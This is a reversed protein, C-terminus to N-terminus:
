SHKQLYRIALRLRQIDDGMSGLGQNCPDCLLGRVQGTAHDHDVALFRGPEPETGCIACRGHQRKALRDYDESTIGYMRLLHANRAYAPNRRAWERTAKRRAAVFEPTGLRSAEYARVAAIRCAKCRSAGKHFQDLPKEQGCGGCLRLGARKRAEEIPKEQLRVLRYCSSCLGRAFIRREPHCTPQM